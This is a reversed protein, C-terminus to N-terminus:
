YDEWQGSGSIQKGGVLEVAHAKVAGGGTVVIAHETGQLTVDELTGRANGSVYVPVKGSVKLKALTLHADGAVYLMPEDDSGGEITTERITISANGGAWLVQKTGHLRGGVIEIESKGGGSVVTEAEIDCDILRLRCGEAVEFAAGEAVRLTEGRLEIAKNACWLSSKRDWGDASTPPLPTPEIVPPTPAPTPEPAPEVPGPPVPAPTPEVPAPEVVAAVPEPAPAPADDRAALVLGGGIVVAVLAVAGVVAAVVKGTAAPPRQLAECLAHMSPYRFRPDPSLGRLLIERVWAPVDTGPPPPLVQRNQTQLLLEGPTRGPFPRQGYVAEWLAVCFAFQDTRPDAHGAYQEPAMYAPTGMLGGTATMRTSLVPQHMGPAPVGGGSAPDPDLGRAIGFDGVRPVGDSGVLVNDPKFDRHVMGAAHAAALGHGARVYLDVVARWGPRHRAVWDRVTGGPVYEMAIVVGGGHERVDYVTVVNAHSLRAMAKAERVLRAVGEGELGRWVKVAVERDLTLHRALYVVGMAGAGLQREIRYDNAVITGPAL